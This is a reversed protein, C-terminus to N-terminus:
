FLEICHEVTVPLILFTPHSFQNRIEAPALLSRNSTLFIHPCNPATRQISQAMEVNNPSSDVIAFAKSPINSINDETRIGFADLLNLISTRRKSPDMVLLCVM